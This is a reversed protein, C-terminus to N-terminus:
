GPVYSIMETSGLPDVHFACQLNFGWLFGLDSGHRGAGKIYEDM